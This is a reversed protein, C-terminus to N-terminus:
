PMRTLTTPGPAISVGRKMSVILFPETWRSAKSFCVGIFRIARGSSTAAAAVQSQESAADYTVPASRGTSPPMVSHATLLRNEDGAGRRAEPSGRDLQERGLSPAHDGRHAPAVRLFARLQALESVDRHERQVDGIRRLDLVGDRSRNRDAADVDHEVVGPVPHGSREFPERVLLDDA